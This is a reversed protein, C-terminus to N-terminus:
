RPTRAIALTTALLTIAALALVSAGQPLGLPAAGGLLSEAHARPMVLAFPAGAGGLVFDLGLVLGRGGGRRGLTAGLAFWAVYATAALAAIWASSAVDTTLPPATSDHAVVAVVGAVLAALAAAVAGTATLGGAALARRSLGLDAFAAFADDLRGERERAGLARGVIAFTALPVVLGLATGALARSAAGSADARRELWAGALAVALATALGLAARPRVVRALAARAGCRFATRTM